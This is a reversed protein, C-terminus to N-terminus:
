PGPGVGHAPETLNDQFPPRDTKRPAVQERAQQGTAQAELTLRYAFNRQSTQPITCSM